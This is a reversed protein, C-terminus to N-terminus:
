AFPNRFRLLGLEVWVVFISTLVLIVLSLTYWSDLQFPINEIINKLEFGTNPLAIQTNLELFLQSVLILGMISMLWLPLKLPKHIRKQGTKLLLFKEMTNEVFQESVEGRPLTRLLDILKDDDELVQNSFNLKKM